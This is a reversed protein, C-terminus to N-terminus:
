KKKKNDDTYVLRNLFIIKQNNLKRYLAQDNLALTNLTNAMATTYNQNDDYVLSWYLDEYKNPIM